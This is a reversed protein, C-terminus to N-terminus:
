ELCKSLEEIAKALATHNEKLMEIIIPYITKNCLMWRTNHHEKEILIYETQFQKWASKVADPYHLAVIKRYAGERGEAWNDFWELEGVCQLYLYYFALAKYNRKIKKATNEEKVNQGSLFGQFLAPHKKILGWVEAIFAAFYGYEYIVNDTLLLPFQTHWYSWGMKSNSGTYGAIEANTYNYKLNDIYTKGEPSYLITSSIKYDLKFAEKGKLYGNRYAVSFITGKFPHKEKTVNETYFTNNGYFLYMIWPSVIHVKNGACNAPLASGVPIADKCHSFDHHKLMRDFDEFTLLIRNSTTSLLLNELYKKYDIFVPHKAPKLNKILREILIKEDFPVDHLHEPDFFTKLYAEKDLDYRDEFAISIPEYYQWDELCKFADKEFYRYSDTGLTKMLKNEFIAPFNIAGPIKIDSLPTKIKDLM